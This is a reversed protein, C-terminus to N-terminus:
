TPSSGEEGARLREILRETARLALAWLTLTPNIGPCTPFVAGSFVYLGPTDHVRLEADVVAGAPDEGMRCGGLDHSSPIGTFHPGRWTQVAGFHRLMAESKGKMWSALRHENEQLEFTIRVIPLGLGSRDRQRPDLDLYNYIYPLNDPEDQVSVWHQWGRLHDKYDRGWISVGPPVPARSLNIPLLGPGASITSGGLFGHALSDFDDALYDDFLVAQGGSSAHRNFVQDPSIGNTRGFMKAMLHRGVQGRNNGLGHPHRADGSLLLLRVNEITYASLIVTQARQLQQRGLQDVYEVGIARGDRDTVVRLVRCGTRLDLNGTALAEPVCNLGPHWKADNLSGLMGDWGSYTTAPRGDYPVSNIGVPLTYPHYGMETAAQRFLEGLRSPRLPPMPHPQSRPIYPNGDDGAIGVIRDVRCYYPELTAYDIPWDALTCGEPLAALGWRERVRSLSRFHHPHFRRLWGSYHLMSGGVANVMNGLSPQAPRSEVRENPRWWPAEAQFKQGLQSRCYHAYTLEDPHYDHRTRWPGSEFAVVRLGARTLLPAILGGVAGLGVLIVDAPAAPPQAGRLPDYGPLESPPGAYSALEAEVDVLSQIPQDRTVPSVQLNEAATTSLWIGPHGLAQWGLKDRNGGHIPDAFLGEQLHRRLLAFFDQQFGAESGTLRGAELTAILLDQQESRCAAFPTAFQDRAAQDILTLGRRYTERWRHEFGGLARDLYDVVGINAAGPTEADAPFLREFVADAIEREALTLTIRARGQPDLVSM